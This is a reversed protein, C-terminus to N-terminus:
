VVVGQQGSAAGEDAKCAGAYVGAPGPWIEHEQDGNGSESVYEPGRDERAVRRHLAPGERFHFVNATAKKAM